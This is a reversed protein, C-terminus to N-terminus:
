YKSVDVVGGRQQFSQQQKSKIIFTARERKIWNSLFARYDKQVKGKSDLWNKASDWCDNAFAIPVEYKQALEQLVEETISTRKSFIKEEKLPTPIDKSMSEIQKDNNNNNENNNKNNTTIQQNNTPQKNTVRKNTQQNSQQYLDYNTVTIYSYKNTTKITIENTLKLKNIAWRIQMRSLNLERALTESGTILSGREIDIGKWKGNEHNAKLLFHIFVDKVTHDRYWEWETIKRHLSIWGNNM